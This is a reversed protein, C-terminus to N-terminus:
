NIQGKIKEKIYDVVEDQLQDWSPIGCKYYRVPVRDYIFQDAMDHLNDNTEVGGALVENVIYSDLLELFGGRGTLYHSPIRKKDILRKGMDTIILSRPSNTYDM